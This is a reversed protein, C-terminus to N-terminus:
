NNKDNLKEEAETLKLYIPNVNHPNVSKDNIHKLVIREVNIKSEVCSIYNDDNSVFLTNDKIDKMEELLQDFLIYKDEIYTNLENDYIGAFVFGRRADMFSCIYKKDTDYSAMVELSSIPIIDINLSWAIVKAVTVGIRIGTFSGPGVSIYIRNLDNVRYKNKELMEKMAPLLKESLKNDNTFETYDILKSDSLVGLRIIQSCTDLFLSIM